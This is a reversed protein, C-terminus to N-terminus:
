EENPFHAYIVYHNLASSKSDSFDSNSGIEALWTVYDRQM